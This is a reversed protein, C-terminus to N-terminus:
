RYEECTTQKHTHTHKVKLEEEREVNSVGTYTEEAEFMQPPFTYRCGM